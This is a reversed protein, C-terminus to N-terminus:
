DKCLSSSRPNISDPVVDKVIEMPGSDHTVKSRTWQYKALLKSLAFNSAKFFNKRMTQNPSLPKTRLMRIAVYTFIQRAIIALQTILETFRLIVDRFRFIM